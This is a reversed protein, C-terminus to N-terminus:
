STHGGLVAVLLRIDIAVEAVREFSEIACDGVVIFKLQFEVLLLAM